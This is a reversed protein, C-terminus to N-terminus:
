YPESDPTIAANGNEMAWASSEDEFSSAPLKLFIACLYAVLERTEADAVNMFEVGIESQAENGNVYVVSCALTMRGRGPLCMALEVTSGAKLGGPANCIKAGSYSIDGIYVVQQEEGAVLIASLADPSMRIRARREASSLPVRPDFLGADEHARTTESESSEM